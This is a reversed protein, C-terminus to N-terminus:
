LRNQCFAALAGAIENESYPEESRRGFILLGALRGTREMCPLALAALLSEALLLPESRAGAMSSARRADYATPRGSRIATAIFGDGRAGKFTLQATRTSTSGSLASWRLRGEEDLRAIGAFDSGTEERWRDAQLDSAAFTYGGDM